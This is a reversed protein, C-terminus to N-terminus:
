RRASGCIVSAKRVPSPKPQCRARRPRRRPLRRTRGGRSRRRAPAPTSGRAPPRRPSASEGAAPDGVEAAAQARRRHQHGLGIRAGGDDARVVVGFRDLQRALVGGLGPDAVPDGELHGGRLAEAAGAVVQHRHEVGQVVHAVRHPGGPPDVLRERGVARPQEDLGEGRVPDLLVEVRHAPEVVGARREEAHGVPEGLVTPVCQTRLGTLGRDPLHHGLGAEAVEPPGRSVGNLM